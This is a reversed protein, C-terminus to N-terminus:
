SRTVLLSVCSPVGEQMLRKGIEFLEADSILNTEFWVRGPETSLVDVLYDEAIRQWPVGFDAITELVRLRSLQTIKNLYFAHLVVADESSLTEPQECARAITQAANEGMLARQDALVESYGQSTLEALSLAKAQQLEVFVLLLGVLLAVGTALQVYNFLREGTM